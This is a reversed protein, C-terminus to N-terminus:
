HLSCHVSGLGSWVVFSLRGSGFCFSSCVFDTLLLALCAFSIKSILYNPIMSMIYIKGYRGM